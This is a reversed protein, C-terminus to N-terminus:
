FEKRATKGIHYKGQSYRQVVTRWPERWSLRSWRLHFLVFIQTQSQEDSERKQTGVKKVIGKVVGARVSFPRYDDTGHKAGQGQGGHCPRHALMQHVLRKTAMQVPTV